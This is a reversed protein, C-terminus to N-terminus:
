RETIKHKKTVFSNAPFLLNRIGSELTKYMNQMDFRTGINLRDNLSRFSDGRHGSIEPYLRNSQYRHMQYRHMQYRHMQYRHMQYRRMILSVYFLIMTSRILKSSIRDSSTALIVGVLCRCTNPPDHELLWKLLPKNM